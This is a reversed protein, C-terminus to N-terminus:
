RPARRRHPADLITRWTTDQRVRLEWRFEDPGTPRIISWTNAARVELGTSDARTFESEDIAGTPRVNWQVIRGRKSDFFILGEYLLQRPGRALDHTEFHLLRKTPGWFYRIEVHLPSGDPWRGEGVWTGGVLFAVPALPDAATPASAPAADPRTPLSSQGPLSHPALLILVIPLIVRDMRTSALAKGSALRRPTHAIAIM